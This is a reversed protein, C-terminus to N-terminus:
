FLDMVSLGSSSIKMAHEGRTTRRRRPDLVSDAPVFLLGVVGSWSISGDGPLQFSQMLFLKRDKVQTLM